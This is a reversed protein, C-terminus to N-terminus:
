LSPLADLLRMKQEWLADETWGIADDKGLGLVLIDRLGHVSKGAKEIAATEEQVRDLWNRAVDMQSETLNPARFAWLMRDTGHTVYRFLDGYFRKLADGDGDQPKPYMKMLGEVVERQYYRELNPAIEDFSAIPHAISYLYWEETLDGVVISRVGKARLARAFAGSRQWEMPNASSPLWNQGDWCGRFTGYVVGLADTEIATTIEEPAVSKLQALATPSTPDIKLATCLAAFQPRLEAPTRPPYIISNSQLVASSFPASVGEPLHSAFHLLQHVAHAGASLGTIQINEPDGGFANIHEKIWSVGLWLDKFGFNGSIPPSDSALFGFASLRYGLNVYVENREAAVYQAQSNLGHPGGFQLFGGHIYVKVPFGTKGPFSPPCVVDAFLPDESPKGLGVKNEMPTDPRRSLFLMALWSLRGRAQGDNQPQYGYRSERTYEKDEYRFDPPLPKPDEFREPPLAYPIELFVAANNSARAGTIPGLKTEIRIRETDRLEKHLPVAMPFLSQAFRFPPVRLLRVLGVCEAAMVVGISWVLMIEGESSVYLSWRALKVADPIVDAEVVRKSLWSNSCNM